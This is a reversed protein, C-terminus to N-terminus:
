AASKEIHAIRARIELIEGLIKEEESGPLRLRATAAELQERLPRTLLRVWWEKAVATPPPGATASLELRSWAAQLSPPLSAAWAATPTRSDAEAPWGAIYELLIGGPELKSAQRAGHEALWRRLEPDALAALCIIKMPETLAVEAPPASPAEMEQEEGSPQQPIQSLLAAPTIALRAAVRAVADERYVPDRVSGLLAALRRSVRAKRAPEGLEGAERAKEVLDDFAERAQRVADGLAAAGRERVLSDPDHGAPLAAVRVALGASLLAPLSKIAAQRGATDSDFCLIVTEVYRALLAAQSSTLATGQPAVVHTLGAASTRIVDLQGECLLATKAEILARKAKHLGFLVRGKTFLPTEPSNVYKAEKAAPDLLRGSFAIVEGMENCIPFMLRGRFRAYPRKPGSEQRAVGLGSELIEAESFGARRLALPLAEWSDPAFGLGWEQALADSLERSRLYSRALEGAAADWLQRQFWKAAEAHLALLRQRRGQRAADAGFEELVPIGARAALRKVAEPFSVQEFDMLFRFVTGGAGCGFCHYAQREPNVYFSPTKEKHFPCLARYHSGARQLPFYSGILDVIDTAEAVRRITEESIRGM